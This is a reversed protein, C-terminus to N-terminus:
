PRTIQLGLQEMVSLPLLNHSAGSDLMCNHLLLDHIVLFVYFPPTSSEMEEVNPGFVVMPREEQLNLSDPISTVGQPLMFQSVQAQYSPHKLLKALPVPIKVKELEKQLFFVAPSKEIPNEKPEKPMVPPKDETPINKVTVHSDDIPKSSSPISVNSHIPENIPKKAKGEFKQVVSEKQPLEEELEQTQTRKRSSRLDYKRHFQAQM